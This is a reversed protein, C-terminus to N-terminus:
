PISYGARVVRDGFLQALRATEASDALKEWLQFYRSQVDRQTEIKLGERPLDLFSLVAALASQPHEVLEEYTLEHVRQVHPRDDAFLEHCVVWHELLSQASSHSWKWTAASVAIPHRRIIVFYADPFLAQLFRTRILNPPSKELLMPKDLDWHKSWEAFLRFRNEPTALPSTETLHAKPDFGFRGPGGHARAPLYVSQLHQGEDEPVGTRSFASIQSHGALARALLTTGSKHLGGIFVLRHPSAADSM